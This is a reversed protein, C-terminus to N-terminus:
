KTGKRAKKEGKLLSERIERGKHETSLATIVCNSPSIAIPKQKKSDSQNNGKQVAGKVYIKYNTHSVKEVEGEVRTKDSGVLVKVTDGKAVTTRKLKYQARLEKSLPCVM